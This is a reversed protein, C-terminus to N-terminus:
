GNYRKSGLRGNALRKNYKKLSRDLANEINVELSNSLTIISFILDGIELELKENNKLTNKGYDSALLVEKALEGLESITDLLRSEPSGIISNKECFVQVKKQISAL